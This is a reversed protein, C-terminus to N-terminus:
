DHGRSEWAHGQAVSRACRGRGVRTRYLVPTAPTPRADSRPEVAERPKRPPNVEMLDRVEVLDVRIEAKGTNTMRRPWRYRIAKQRVAESSIGLRESLDKYTYWEEAVDSGRQVGPAFPRM